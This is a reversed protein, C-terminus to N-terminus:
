ATSKLDSGYYLALCVLLQWTIHGPVLYVNPVLNKMTFGAEFGIGLVIGGLCGAGALMLWGSWRLSLPILLRAGLGVIAAGGVGATAMMSIVSPIGCLDRPFGSDGLWLFLSFKQQM